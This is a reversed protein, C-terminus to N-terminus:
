EEQVAALYADLISRAMLYIGDVASARPGAVNLPQQHAAMSKTPYIGTHRDTNPVVSCGKSLLGTKCM